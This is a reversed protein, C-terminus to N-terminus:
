NKRASKRLSGHLRTLRRSNLSRSRTQGTKPSIDSCGWFFDQYTFASKKVNRGFRAIVSEVTDGCKAAIRQAAEMVHQPINRM